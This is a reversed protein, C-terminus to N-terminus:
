GGLEGFRCRFICRRGNHHALKACYVRQLGRAWRYVEAAALMAALPAVLYIWLATWVRAPVASALTRAPNMSMGSIPSEIAIYSGALLGAFVGVWRSLGPTNSTWLVLTMMGFAILFEAGLAASVGWAGPVTVISRVPPEVFPGRVLGTVLLVGAIGGLTQFLVYFAADWGAIKGLRWFTLTTAPNLHAGSRQGWPSYILGMATLAIGLGMLARRLRPDALAARAPSGPYELLTALLGASVMFLGLGLAEALYEPWHERLARVM